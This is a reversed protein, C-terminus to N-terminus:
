YIKLYKKEDILVPINNIIPFIVKCRKCFLETNNKLVLKGLCTPCVVNKSIDFM